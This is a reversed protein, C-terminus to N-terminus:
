LASITEENRASLCYECEFVNVSWSHLVQSKKIGTNKPERSSNDLYSTHTHTHTHSIYTIYM